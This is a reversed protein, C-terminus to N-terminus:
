NESNATPASAKHLPEVNGASFTESPLAHLYPLLGTLANCNVYNTQVDSSSMVAVEHWLRLDFQGQLRMAMTQFKNFIDLHTPHSKAWDMMHNISLFTQMGFTKRVEDGHQTRHAMYRSDFCGTDTNDALYHLGARLAPEIATNYEDLESGTVATLDQGSRILCLNDPASVSIHAGRTIAEKATPMENLTAAFKGAESNPIRDEVGGWYAHERIPGITSKSFSLAAGELSDPTSFMTEFQGKQFTYVEVWLGYSAQLHDPSNLFEDLTSEERWADFASRGKFYAIVVRNIDGARDVYEAYELMTVNSRAFIADVAWLAEKTPRQVGFYCATVETDADMDATFAPVPPEWNEPMHIPCKKISISNVSNAM